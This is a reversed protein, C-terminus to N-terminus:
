APAGARGARRRRLVLGVTLLSLAIAGSPDRTSSCCGAGDCEHSSDPCAITETQCNAACGDGATTNGDDCTEGPDVKGNGCLAPNSDALAVVCVDDVTWGGFNTNRDSNEQFAITLPGGAATVSTLDVDAFRWEHDDFDIERAPKGPSAFNEFVKAGNATIFAQDFAADESNLWRYYQLHVNTYGMLDIAPSTAAQKTGGMYFGDGSLDVGMVNSGGHASSPDGGHGMPPGVEWEDRTAPTGTHTWGQWGSEFDFCQIPTVQGVYMQYDPDAVNDPFAVKTGDTLTITVHYLVTTGPAQAPIDGSYTTGAGTLAVDSAAATSGQLKWSLTVSAVTPPPCNPNIIAPTSFALTVTNNTRTPPQFNYLGASDALGHLGFTTDIECQDPVGDAVNGNDDDAVLVAAYSAPIDSARQMVSYYLTLFKSFGAADGYKAQLAKRLDWLAEGLIEGEDHVEGDADEPWRKEIGVPDLERLPADTYYFGRGMGHDGTISVALTDALGESLGSVSFFGEGPIVSNNHVSHGFEHYVVDAIRGTNECTGLTEKYFHIDDGTSYANCQAQDENVTASLQQDLWALNPNLHARVWAKAQSAFVFTDLQADTEPDAAHSWTVSGGTSLSLTDTVLAGQKNTMAVLPGALGPVLTAPDPASYAVVGSLDSTAAVGNITHTDQPAPQPHRTGLPYRDPVDFDVTGSFLYHVLARRAIAAGDNADVWVDWRGSGRDEEVQITEAVRYAINATRDAGREYVIPVIVRDGHARVHTALNDGALFARASVEATTPELAAQPMRVHVNPLATSSVMVLHDREFTIGITGGEVRLGNSYQQFGVSRITGSPDLQNGVITFDSATSGPALVAIHAALFESAARAALTADATAAFVPLSPGWMRLPVDTDRDWIQHWSALSGLQATKPATHGTSRHVRPQRSGAAIVPAEHRDPGFAFTSSVLGAALASAIALTRFRM